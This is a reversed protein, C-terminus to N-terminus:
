QDWDMQANINLYRSLVAGSLIVGGIITIGLGFSGKDGMFGIWTPIIGSGVVVALPLTLSVAINRINSPAVSSLAAFGAPFFCGVIWPQFFILIMVLIRSGSGLFITLIGTLLFVLGITRKSGYRDNAWGAAFVLGIGPIRSLSLLTNATSREFGHEVILYLPLMTFIGMSSGVGFCFFIVIIWFSPKSILPKIAPIGPPEGSFKGGRGFLAFAVGALMPAIGTIVLVGRWSFWSLLMESVLPATIFGLNPAIEHVALAKGWHKAKVLATLTAIGSPLYIGTGVGLIILGLRIVRLGPSFAACLLGIGLVITSLVIAKRHTLVYSIYSSSLIGIFFGLSIFLFLSGAATHSLGLNREVTPMLPSLIVRAMFGLWFITTLSLIPGLHMDAILSRWRGNDPSPDNM